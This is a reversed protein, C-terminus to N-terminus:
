EGTPLSSPTPSPFEPERPLFVERPAGMGADARLLLLRGDAGDFAVGEGEPGEYPTVTDLPRQEHLEAERRAYAKLSRTELWALPTLLGGVLLFAVTTAALWRALSYPPTFLLRWAEAWAGGQDHMVRLVGYLAAFALAVLLVLGALLWLGAFRRM